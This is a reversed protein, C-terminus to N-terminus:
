FRFMWGAVAFLVAIVTVAAIHLAMDWVNIEGTRRYRRIIRLRADVALAVTAALLAAKLAILRGPGELALVEGPSSVKLAMYAGTAAAIALSPLGLREYVREFRDLEEFSGTSLMRPVYGLLIILHGGIWVSAAVVHLLQAVAYDNM